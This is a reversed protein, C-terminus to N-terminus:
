GDEREKIQQLLSAAEAERAAQARELRDNERRYIEHEIPHLLEWAESAADENQDDDVIAHAAVIFGELREIEKEQWKVLALLAPVDQRAASIFEANINQQDRGGYNSTAVVYSLGGFYIGTIEDDSRAPVSKWPGRTAKSVREEVEELNVIPKPDPSTM